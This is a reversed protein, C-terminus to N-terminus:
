PTWAYKHMHAEVYPIIIDASEMVGGGIVIIEPDYAHVLAVADAASIKLCRDRIALATKDRREAQLRLRGYRTKAKKKM